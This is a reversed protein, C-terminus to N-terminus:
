VPVRASLEELAAACREARSRFAASIHRAELLRAWYGRAADAASRWVDLSDATPPRPTFPREVVETQHPAFLMPLMDYVPALALRGDHATFFSLNGGHRDSNGILGGFVDLWRVRQADEASLRGQAHLATAVGSWNGGLGTWENDAASLSVVGRRGRPGVRDFREVELFRFAGDAVFSCRAASVGISELHELALAECALLDRWRDAADGASEGVYKVLVHRGECWAAFKPQEGGASSGVDGAAARRALEIYDARSVAEPASALWRDMSERGLVLDGPCDEGRRLLAVLQHDGSWDSPRPPLLLDPHRATFTRGLFGQPAMDGVFPPLGEFLEGEEEAGPHSLWHGGNHLLHLTGFSAPRGAEDIRWVDHRPGLERLDRLRAYRAARARGMRVIENRAAGLWRSVTPQSVGLADRLQNATAAGGLRDFARLIDNRFPNHISNRRM